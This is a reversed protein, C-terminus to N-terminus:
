EWYSGSMSKKTGFFSFAFYSIDLVHTLTLAKIGIGWRVEKTGMLVEGVGWFLYQGTESPEQSFKVTNFHPLQLLLPLNHLDEGWGEIKGATSNCFTGQDGTLSKGVLHIQVCLLPHKLAHEQTFEPSGEHVDASMPRAIYTYLSQPFAHCQKNSWFQLPWGQCAEWNVLSKETQNAKGGM